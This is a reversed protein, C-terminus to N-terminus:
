TPRGDIGAPEDGAAIGLLMHALRDPLSFPVLHHTPLERYAWRESAKAREAAKWFASDPAEDPDATAKIYTRSFPWDDLPRSLAVPQTFTAIPQLSRRAESWATEEPDDLRRPLPALLWSHGPDVDGATANGSGPGGLGTLSRVSDGDAPVLADLFVLHRVRDGIRDLAGTVVMGGYSFGLLVIDDLDEYRITNVVDTVHTDLGVGPHSLHSREGIGTLSPTFVQHGARQLLPRLKRFGYSGGWAGHVLVIAAM